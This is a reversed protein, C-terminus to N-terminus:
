FDTSTIGERLAYKTLEAVSYLGLKDMLNRRHTEVTKVSVKLHMAVEKTAKGESMLQLVERERASLQSFVSSHGNTKPPTSASSQMAAESVDPSLYIKGDRIADLANGLEQFASTKLIYASAGAKLMETTFKGPSYATLAIVKPGRGEARIQRTAEIGNLDPMNIDMVVVDPSLEQSLRVATRGDGAEAVVNAGIKELMLRLGSRLVTHDDVLLVRLQNEM